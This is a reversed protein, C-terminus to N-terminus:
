KELFYVIFFVIVLFIYQFFFVQIWLPFQFRTERSILNAEMLIKKELLSNLIILFLFGGLISLLTQYYQIDTKIFKLLVFGIIGYFILFCGWLLEGIKIKPSTEKFEKSIKPNKFAFYSIIFDALYVTFFLSFVFGGGWKHYVICISSPIIFYVILGWKSYIIWFREKDRFSMIGIFIMLLIIILELYYMLTAAPHPQSFLLTFIFLFIISLIIRWISFQSKIFKIYDINTKDFSKDNEM